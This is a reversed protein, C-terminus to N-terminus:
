DDKAWQDSDRPYLAWVGTPIRKWWPIRLCCATWVCQGRGTYLISFRCPGQGIDLLKTAIVLAVLPAAFAQFEHAWFIVLGALLVFVMRIPSRFLEDVSQKQRSSRVRQSRKSSWHGYSWLSCCCIHPAGTSCSQTISIRCGPTISWLILVNILTSRIM